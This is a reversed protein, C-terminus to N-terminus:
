ADAVGRTGRVIVSFERVDVGALRDVREVRISDWPIDEIAGTRDDVFHHHPELNPDYAISGESVVLPRLLGKSVFTQLTNYVTARSVAPHRSTVRRFVDDATPHEATRLVYEAIALRQASPRIEHELLERQLENDPDVDGM